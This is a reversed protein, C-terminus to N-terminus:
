HTSITISIKYVEKGKYDTISLTNDLTYQPKRKGMFGDAKM